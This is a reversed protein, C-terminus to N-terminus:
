VLGGEMIRRALELDQPTTIKINLPSGMVLKVNRGMRRVLTADDTASQREQKARRHAELLVDVRFTQPTQCAWLASREPTEVLFGARDGVLITDIAPIAVTAAGYEAAAEISAMVSERRVFPRAADHIVVIETSSDLAVLANNVSDQREPGGEVLTFRAVPFHETLVEEFERRHTSPAAIVATHLLGLAEFRSLTRCLLPKGALDILAKPGMGGLRTGMGAAPVVLQFREGTPSKAVVGIM